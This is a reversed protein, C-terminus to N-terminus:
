EEAGKAMNNNSNEQGDMGSKNVGGPHNYLTQGHQGRDLVEDKYYKYSIIMM